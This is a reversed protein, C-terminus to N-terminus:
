RFACKWERKMPRGIVREWTDAENLPKFRLFSILSQIDSTANVLITGTLCWRFEARLGFASQFMGTQRNRITHAEDLVVRRWPLAFLGKKPIKEPSEKWENSLIPYGVIVIDQAALFAPSPNRTNGAYVHVRLAGPAVHTVIQFM